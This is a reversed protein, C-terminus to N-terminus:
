SCRCRTSAAGCGPPTWCRTTGGTRDLSGVAMLLPRDVAGLEARSRPRTPAPGAGRRRRGPLARGAALRADRAGRSRARDVLDSSTGLVVAAARAVRRELLRLLQGRAGEAHSRTHWTVVLPTRAGASRSRPGSPPTCGTRTCWTPTRAPRACRPRGVGPRQQRPVPSSTRARAPSTTSASREAPACVTVRVGRAVLGAALSRVHASSGASGGGLVQVTRLQTVRLIVPRATLPQERPERPRPEQNPTPRDRLFTCFSRRPPPPGDPLRTGSRHWALSARYTPTRDSSALHALANRRCRSGPGARALPGRLPKVAGSTM